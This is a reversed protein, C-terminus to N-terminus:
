CIYLMNNLVENFRTFTVSNNMQHHPQPFQKELLMVPIVIIHKLIFDCLFPNSLMNQLGAISSFRRYFM